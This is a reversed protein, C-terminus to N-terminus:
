VRADTFPLSPTRFSMLLKNPFSHTKQSSIHLPHPTAALLLPASSVGLDYKELQWSPDLNALSPANAGTM